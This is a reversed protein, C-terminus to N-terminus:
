CTAAGVLVEQAVAPTTEPNVGQWWPNYNEIPVSEQMVFIVEGSAFRTYSPCPQEVTEIYNAIEHLSKNGHEFMDSILGIHSRGDPTCNRLWPWEAILEYPINAVSFFLDASISSSHSEMKVVGAARGACGLACNCWGYGRKAEGTAAALRMAESLKM